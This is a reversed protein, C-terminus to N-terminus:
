FKFLLMFVFYVIVSMIFPLNIIRENSEKYKFEQIEKLTIGNRINYRKELKWLITWALIGM